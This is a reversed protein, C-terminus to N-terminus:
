WVSLINSHIPKVISTSTIPIVSVSVKKRIEERAVALDWIHNLEHYDLGVEKSYKLLSERIDKV